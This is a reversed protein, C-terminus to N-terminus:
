STALRPWPSQEQAQVMTLLRGCSVVGLHNPHVFCESKIFRGGQKPGLKVRVRGEHRHASDEVQCKWFSHPFTEGIFEVIDGTVAM